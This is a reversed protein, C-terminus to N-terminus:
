RKPSLFSAKVDEVLRGTSKEYVGIEIKPRGSPISDEQIYIFLSGASEGAPPAPLMAGIMEIRGVYPSIARFELDLTDNTKNHITYEYLNRYSGDDMKQYLVGRTRILATDTETRASILVGLVGILIILVGTYAKIRTTFRFKEGTNIEHESAYRILGRDMGVGDMMSNCVDICATCNVCELQTGNRIDIGTPCVDVCQHCDICDGKGESKRDENKRFRARSEGRVHDYAVVISNKDLLVSQLRGYPCITTCVQERLKSFVFYFAITFVVIGILGSVHESPPDTIIEILAESGILYALFTNAIAFSIVLYIIHKLAKKRLKEGNWEQRDLKLQHKYDGEIWYEIKRFVNEMFITQPCVWGCFLRGYVVTFLTIFLVGIIMMIVFIYFDYQSFSQGLIVFRRELVGILLVPEGGIRLYPGVFLFALLIYSVWNRRNTFKGAPKKPYIWKRKGAEDVTAIRDRFEEQDEHQM